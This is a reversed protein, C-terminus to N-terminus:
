QLKLNFLEAVKTLLRSTCIPFTMYQDVGIELLSLIAQESQQWSIVYIAPNHQSTPRLREVIESGNLLLCGNLIILLSPKLEACLSLTQTANSCLRVSCGINGILGEIFAASEDYLSYIIVEPKSM